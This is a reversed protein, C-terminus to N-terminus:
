FSIRVSCLITSRTILESRKDIVKGLCKGYPITSAKGPETQSLYIRDGFKPNCDQAFLVPVKGVLAVPLDKENHKEGLEYGPKTSVIGNCETIAQTIEAPGCGMCVLTGAPYVRDSEYYEALDGWKARYAVGFFSIDSEDKCIAETPTAGKGVLTKNFKVYSNVGIPNNWTSGAGTNPKSRQLYNDFSTHPTLTTVDQVGSTKEQVELNTAYRTTGYETESAKNQLDMALKVSSKSGTGTCWGVFFDNEKITLKGRRDPNSSPDIGVETCYAAWGSDNTWDRDAYLPLNYWDVPDGVSPGGPFDWIYTTGPGGASVITATFDSGTAGGSPTSPDYDFPANAIELQGMGTISAVKFSTIEGLDGVSLVKIKFEITPNSSTYVLLDNVHYNQGADSISIDFTSGTDFCAVNGAFIINDSVKIGALTNNSSSRSAGDARVFKGVISNITAAATTCASDSYITDGASPDTTGSTYYLTSGRDWATATSTSNKWSRVYTNGNEDILTSDWTAIMYDGVSSDIQNPEVELVDDRPTFFQWTVNGRSPDGQRAALAPVNTGAFNNVLYFNYPAEVDHYNEYLEVETKVEAISNVSEPELHVNPIYGLNSIVTNLLLKISNGVRKPTTTYKPVNTNLNGIAFLLQRSPEDPDAVYLGVAGVTYEEYRRGNNEGYTDIDIMITYQIGGNAMNQRWSLNNTLTFNPNTNTDLIIDGDAEFDEKTWILLSKPPFVIHNQKIKIAVIEFHYVGEKIRTIANLGEETIILSYNPDISELVWNVGNYKEMEWVEANIDQSLPDGGVACCTGTILEDPNGEFYNNRDDRTEFFHNPTGNTGDTVGYSNVLVYKSVKM